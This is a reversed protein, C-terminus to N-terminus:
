APLENLRARVQDAEPAGLQTYYTLAQQWHHRAQQADGHAERARALGDHARAQLHMDGAQSALALAGSHHICAQRHDGTALSVEGLLHLADTESSRAGAERSLDLAMHLQRAAQQHRGQRLDLEGLGSLAAAEVVRDGLDRSLALGQRLYPGALEDRGQRLSLDGLNLLAYVEGDQNGIERSLVLAQQLHSAAQEYQRLQIQAGALNCLGAVEGPRNGTERHLSLARDYYDAARGYRGRWFALVGLRGLARAESPRDGTQRSLSLAQRLHRAADQDRGQRLEAAALNSLATTEAAVDGIHRAASRASEHVTVAESLHGSPDLYRFITAALRTAHEPWGHAAAHAVAAVLCPLEAALWARAADAETLGTVDTTAAPPEPRQGREAPYSSDMAAAAAHLYYDLLQTLVARQENDGHDAALERSYLRVLDHMGYRGAAVQSILSADALEALLGATQPGTLSALSAVAPLSIDPGPHVGLLRFLRAAAASLHQYSGVLAARVSALPDGATQLADLRDAAHALDAALAELPLEPNTAARAATIALALPLRGCAEIIQGAAGPEAAVRADGLIRSLLGCAEVDNLVDLSMPVAGNTAVLGTLKSRSTVIVLCGPSGPLLQRVQAADSANDLLVLMTREALLSRYLSAQAELDVPIRAAPVELADLFWRIAQGATVPALVPDFGRLNVYLQGDQFRSAAQHAWRLALATKGVGATGGIASIVVTMHGDAVHQDLLRTLAALETARGTFHRAPAPLGRPVVHAPTPERPVLVEHGRGWPVVQHPSPILAPDDDLIKRHLAQLEPGPESGLEEVLLDRARQYAELAEARRGCMYLAHMLLAHLHERLPADATLQLTEAVLESHGGLHLRAEIRLERARFRLETLRSIEQVAIEGLDVDCLANGRWFALASAARESADKWAGVEAARHAVKLAEEMASIDLEGPHVQILYGGPQTMIRNRGTGFAQRLRKVYNQLTIVASPPLAPGWLLDALQDVTVTRGAHLLLAALLTRQKGKPIPVVVGDVRVTLPGLLSFDMGIAM